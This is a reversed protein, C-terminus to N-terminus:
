TKYHRTKKRIIAHKQHPLYHTEGPIHRDPEQVKEVIGQKLQDQFTKDYEKLIEPEKRLRKVQKNLRALSLDYNDPLIAHKEKVPLTVNYREDKFTINKKFAEHVTEKERIGISEMDWLRSLQEDTTERTQAAVRLVHTAVLNANSLRGKHNSPIPGSLVWGLSTENAVPGNDDRGRKIKGTFFKWMHDAGILLDIEVESEGNNDDAIEINYLHEFQQQAKYIEQSGLPACINPVVFAQIITSTKEKVDSVSLEVNEYIVPHQKDVSGFPKILLAERSVTRLTLKARIRESIYSKQGGSYFMLRIKETRIHARLTRKPGNNQSRCLTTHHRGSCKYCSKADCTKAIHNRKLCILCCGERTLIEKKAAVNTIVHCKATFHNQKCYTCVVHAAKGETALLATGTVTNNRVGQHSYSKKESHVLAQSIGSCRERNEIENRLLGMIKDLNWENEKIERGLLLRIDEPIKTMLVPVLLSGYTATPVDLAKLGRVHAEIKDHAKRLAKVDTSNVTPLRLLGDM